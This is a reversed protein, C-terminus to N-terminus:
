AKLYQKFSQCKLRRYDIKQGRGSNTKQPENTPASYYDKKWPVNKEASRGEQYPTYSTVSIEQSVPKRTTPSTGGGPSQETIRLSYELGNRPRKSNEGPQLHHLPRGKELKEDIPGRELRKGYHIASRAEQEGWMKVIEFLIERDTRSFKAV